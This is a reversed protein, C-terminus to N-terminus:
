LSIQNKFSGKIFTELHNGVYVFKEYTNQKIEIGVLKHIRSVYKRYCSVIYEEKKLPIGKYENFINDTKLEIGQLQFVLTINYIKVQIRELQTNIYKHNSDLVNVKQLKSEWYSPNVFLGTAFQKRVRNLTTRCSLPCLGKQNTKNTNIVFLITIKERNM